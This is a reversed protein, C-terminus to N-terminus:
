PGIGMTEVEGIMATVETDNEIAEVSEFALVLTRGGSIPAAVVRVVHTYSGYALEMAAVGQALFVPRASYLPWEPATNAIGQFAALVAAPTQAVVDVTLKMVSGRVTAVVHPNDAAPIQIVAHTGGASVLTWPPALYWVRYSQDPATLSREGARLDGGNAGCASLALCLVGALASRVSM